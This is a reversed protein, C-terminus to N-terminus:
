ADSNRVVMVLAATLFTHIATVIAPELIVFAVVGEMILGALVTASAKNYNKFKM